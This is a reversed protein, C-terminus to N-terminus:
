VILADTIFKLRLAINEKDLEIDEACSRNMLHNLEASVRSHAESQNIM